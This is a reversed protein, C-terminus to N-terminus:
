ITSVSYVEMKEYPKEEAPLHNAQTYADSDHCFPARSPSFSAVILEEM